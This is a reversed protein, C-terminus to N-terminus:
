LSGRVAAGIRREALECLEEELEAGVFIRDLEEAAVAMTWSGCFPDLVPDGERKSALPARRVLRLPKQTPHYGMRKERTPNLSNILDYNFTHRKGKSAWILTEHAHTCALQSM